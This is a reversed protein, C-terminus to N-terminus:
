EEGKGWVQDFVFFGDKQNPIRGTGFYDFREVSFGIVDKVWYQAIGNVSIFANLKYRGETLRLTPITCKIVGSRPYTKKIGEVFVNSLDGINEGTLSTIAFAIRFDELDQEYNTDYEALVNLESGIPFNNKLNGNADEFWMKNVWANIKLAPKVDRDPYVLSEFKVLGQYHEITAEVTDDKILQGQNLLIARTCLQKISSMNHSVFLVTRGQSSVDKMKGLCKEQFEADGVALVEDVILIEPELHAAVAFGLRVKMGSSYRKVPTDLYKAVGSFDIIEDLKRRIERKNMGLIAGNLFINERGSLEPHFGTGVELLAAIRGKARIEGRTPTTVQSLIKLLTSKGAGNKGIVGVVEGKKVEFSVDRLSWVYGSGGVQTRDNVDGIKQYPDEKGRVKHWWRNLDHSVTGTGLKGLRYQKSIGEVKLVTEGM